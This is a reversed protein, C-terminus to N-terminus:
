GAGPVSFLLLFNTREVILLMELLSPDIAPVRSGSLSFIKSLIIKLKTGYFISHFIFQHIM